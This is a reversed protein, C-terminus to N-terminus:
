NQDSSRGHKPKWSEQYYKWLIIVAASFCVLDAAVATLNIQAIFQLYGQSALFGVLLITTVLLVRIRRCLECPVAQKHRNRIWKAMNKIDATIGNEHAIFSFIYSNVMAVSFVVMRLIASILVTSLYFLDIGM